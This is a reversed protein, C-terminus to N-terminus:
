KPKPFKARFKRDEAGELASAIKNWGVVQIVKRAAAPSATILIHWIAKEEDDFTIGRPADLDRILRVRQRWTLSRLGGKTRHAAHYYDMANDDTDHGGIGGGTQATWNIVWWVVNPPSKLLPKVVGKELAKKQKGSFDKSVSRIEAVKEKAFVRLAKKFYKNSLLQFPTSYKWRIRKNTTKAQPIMEEAPYLGNNNLLLKESNGIGVIGNVYARDIDRVSVEVAKIALKKEDGTGAKGDGFLVVDKGDVTAKIGVKNDWDHLALGVIDGFDVRGMNQLAKRIKKLAKEFVLQESAYWPDLKEAIREAMYGQLNHYFMPVKANWYRRAYERPIRVHGSSFTDTLYHSAFGDVALAKNISKGAAGVAEAERIAKAHNLHYGAIANQPVDVGKIRKVDKAKDKTSRSEDGKAPNIFHSRNRGALAYYRKTAADKAEKDYKRGKQKLKWERVYEIEARSEKGKRKKAFRRMQEISEFHDGAMAVMEGYTIHYNPALEVMKKGSGIDGMAKHERAGFRQIMESGTQRGVPFSFFPKEKRSESSIKSEGSKKFFPKSKLVKRSHSNKQILTRM